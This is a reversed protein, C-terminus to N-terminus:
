QVFLRAELLESSHLMMPFPSFQEVVEAHPMMVGDVERHDSYRITSAFSRGGARVTYDSRLLLGSVQDIYLLYQDIDKDPELGGWTVLVLDVAQGEEEAEGAWVIVDGDSAMRFPLEWLYQSAPAYVEYKMSRKERTTDGRIAFYTAGDAGAGDGAAKGDLFVLENIFGSGPVFTMQVRTSAQKLPTGFRRMMGNPWTDIYVLQASKSRSWADGGHAAAMDDVLRRGREYDEDPPSVELTPPRVDKIACGSLSLATAILTMLTRM